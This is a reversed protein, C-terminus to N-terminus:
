TSALAQSFDQSDNGFHKYGVSRVRLRANDRGNPKELCDFDIIRFEAEVISGSDAASTKSYSIAHCWRYSQNSNLLGQVTARATAVYIDPGAANQLQLRIEYTVFGPVKTRGVRNFLGRDLELCVQFNKRRDNSKYDVDHAEHKSTSILDINPGPARNPQSGTQGSHNTIRSQNNWKRTRLGGLSEFRNSPKEGNVTVTDPGPKVISKSTPDSEDTVAIQTSLLHSGILVEGYALPVTAGIGVTNAPGQFAYSQQGSTARSVGQPGSANTNEGPKFRNRSGSIPDPQPSVLQAVGSLILGAGIASFATGVAAANLVALTSVGVAAQGAGFLGVTGFLGAGPFLFSAAVLGVGALITGTSGGSGAIVPALVLDNTGLPLKLDEYGLFTGAQVLTYGVGHQHAEALEQQLAPYNICLLRIAEAPSRLNFYVHESGYREGLDDLLRVTQQMGFSRQLELSM